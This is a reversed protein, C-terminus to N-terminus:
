AQRVVLPDSPKGTAMISTGMYSRRGRAGRLGDHRAALFVGEPRQGVGLALFESTEAPRLGCGGDVDGAGGHEQGDGVAAVILLGGAGGAAAGAVRDGVEDGPEVGLAQGGERGSVASALRDGM